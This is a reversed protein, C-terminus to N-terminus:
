RESLCLRQQERLRAAFRAVTFEREYLALGQRSLRECLSEDTALRALATALAGADGPPVLLATDGDRLVEPIAGVPTTLVPLGLGLAELVVLPLGEDHSPLVLADADALAAAAGDADLWGALVARGGLAAVAPRFAEANGGALTLRLRVGALEPRGLAELLEPVGKRASLNGLFLVRFPAGPMPPVPERAPRPVGNRVVAVRGPAVGLETVWRRWPEGLVVVRTAARFMAGVLRRRVPGLAAHFAIVQAAHLHLLVPVGLLRAVLLLAGKRWVSGREAVNLHVLALRGGLRLWLIRWAVRGAHLVSLAARGGGRSEAALLRLPRGDAGEGSAPPAEMLYTMARGMGGGAQGFPSVLLCLDARGRVSASGGRGAARGNGRTGASPADLVDAEVDARAWGGPPRPGAPGAVPAGRGARTAADTRGFVTTDQPM